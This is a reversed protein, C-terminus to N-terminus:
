SVGIARQEAQIHMGTTMLWATARQIEEAPGELQLQLWGFDTDVNAKVIRVLVNFDRCLTSIWPTSVAQKGASINLDVIPMSACFQVTRAAPTGGVNGSDLELTCVRCSGLESLV